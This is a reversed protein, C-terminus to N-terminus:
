ETEEENIAGDISIDIDTIIGAIIGNTSEAMTEGM